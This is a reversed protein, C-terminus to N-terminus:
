GSINRVEPEELVYTRPVKSYSLGVWCTNLDLTQAMLVLHEGYYGVREDLNDAKKGAMVIYNSVNRFKGYKTM